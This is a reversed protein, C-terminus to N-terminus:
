CGLLTIKNMPVHNKYCKKKWCIKSFNSYFTFLCSFFSIHKINTTWISTTVSELIFKSSRLRYSGGFLSLRKMWCSNFFEWEFRSRLSQPRSQTQLIIQWLTNFKNYDVIKLFCSICIICMCMPAFLYLAWEWDFFPIIEM